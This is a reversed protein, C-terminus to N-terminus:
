DYGSIRLDVAELADSGMVQEERRVSVTSCRARRRWPQSMGFSLVARLARIRPARSSARLLLFATFTHKGWSEDCVTEAVALLPDLRHAIRRRPIPAFGDSSWSYLPRVRGEWFKLFIGTCKLPASSYETTSKGRPPVLFRVAVRILGPPTILPRPVSRVCKYPWCGLPVLSGQAPRQPSIRGARAFAVGTTMVRPLLSRQRKPGVACRGCSDASCALVTGGM